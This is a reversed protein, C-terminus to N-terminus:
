LTIHVGECVSMGRVGDCVRPDVSDCKRSLSVSEYLRACGYM